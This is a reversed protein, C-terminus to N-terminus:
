ARKINVLKTCTLSQFELRLVLMHYHLLFTLRTRNVSETRLSCTLCCILLIIIVRDLRDLFLIVWLLMHTLLNFCFLKFVILTEYVFKFSESFFLESESLISSLLEDNKLVEHELSGRIGMTLTSIRKARDHDRGQALSQCNDFPFQILAFKM